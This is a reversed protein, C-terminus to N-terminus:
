LCKCVDYMQQERDERENIVVRNGVGISQNNSQNSLGKGGMQNIREIEKAGRMIM